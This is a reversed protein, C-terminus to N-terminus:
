YIIYISISLQPLLRCVNPSSSHNMNYHVHSTEALLTGKGKGGIRKEVLDYIIRNGKGGFGHRERKGWNKKRGFWFLSDLIQIIYIYVYMDIM